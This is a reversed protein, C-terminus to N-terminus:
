ENRTWGACQKMKGKLLQGINQPILRNERCFKSITDFHHVIGEPSVLSYKAALTGRAAKANDVRPVIMCTAPSYVRNGEVKIDKDLVYSPDDYNAQCEVWEAFTQFNLWSDCVTCDSYTPYKATYCRVLMNRWRNYTPNSSVALHRGEGVYGKNAISPFYPDKVQGKRLNSAHVSKVHGTQIFRVQVDLANNYKQVVCDGCKNTPFVAGKQLDEPIRRM